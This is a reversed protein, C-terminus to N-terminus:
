FKGNTLPNQDSYDIYKQGEWGLDTVESGPDNTDPDGEGWAIETQGDEGELVIDTETANGFQDLVGQESMIQNKMNGNGPVVYAEFLKDIEPYGTNFEENNYAFVECTVDYAQLSGFQYMVPKYDVFTIEFLKKTIPIYILDGERPRLITNDQEMVEFKFERKSISLIVQDRIEVGFKSLFQGDGTFGDVTKIYCAVPFAASFRSLKDDVIINDQNLQQRKIYFMDCSYMRLAEHVLSEILDQEAPSDYNRFYPSSGM